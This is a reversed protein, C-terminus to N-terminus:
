RKHLRTRRRGTRRRGTRQRGRRRTTKRRRRTGGGRTSYKGALGHEVQSARAWQKLWTMEKGTLRRGKDKLAQDKARGHSEWVSRPIEVMTPMVGGGLSHFIDWSPTGKIRHQTQPTAAFLRANHPGVAYRHFKYIEDRTGRQPAKTRGRTSTSPKRAASTRYMIIDNTCFVIIFADLETAGAFINNIRSDIMMMM